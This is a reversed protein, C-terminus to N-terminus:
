FTLYSADLDHKEFYPNIFPNDITQVHNINANISLIGETNTFKGDRYEFRNSNLM